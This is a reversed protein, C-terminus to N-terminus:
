GSLVGAEIMLTEAMVRQGYVAGILIASLLVYYAVRKKKGMHHARRGWSPRLMVVLAFPVASIALPMPIGNRGFRGTYPLRTEMPVNQFVYIAIGICVVFALTGLITMIRIARKGLVLDRETLSDSSAGTLRDSVVKERTM